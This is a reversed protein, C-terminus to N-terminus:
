ASSSAQEADAARLVPRHRFGDPLTLRVPDHRRALEREPVDALPVHLAGAVHGEEWEHPERVDILLRGARALAVAEAAGVERVAAATM